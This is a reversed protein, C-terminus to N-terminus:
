IRRRRVSVIGALGLALLAVTGPEAVAVPDGNGPDGNGPGGNVPDDIEVGGITAGDFALGSQYASDNWNTVGLELFYNAGAAIQYSAKVWGTYGCGDDYCEGSDSGLPSWVPGGAIISVNGPDLSAAPDPMAFGPVTNGGPTTRATFLLAAESKDENLLRAWAYDAYGAGDSTVYNFFFQLSAGSSASFGKSTIVSGTTPEGDGGVDTLGVGSQGDETSVWGYQTSGPFPSLTVVGDAGSVGFSGVGDWGSISIASVTPVFGAVGLTLALGIAKKRIINM